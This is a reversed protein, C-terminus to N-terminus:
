LLLQLFHGMTSSHALTIIIFFIGSRVQTPQLSTFGLFCFILLGLIIYWILMNHKLFLRNLVKSIMVIGILGGLGFPILIFLNDVILSLKLSVINSIFDKFVQLLFDYIGFILLVLSGSAAPIIMM